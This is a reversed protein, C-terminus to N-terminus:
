HEQRPIGDRMYVWVDPFPHVSDNSDFRQRKWIKATETMRKHTITDNWDRRCPIDLLSKVFGGLSTTSSSSRFSDVPGEKPGCSDTYLRLGPREDRYLYRIEDRQNAVDGWCFMFVRRKAQESQSTREGAASDTGFPHNLDKPWYTACSKPM